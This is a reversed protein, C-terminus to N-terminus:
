RRWKYLKEYMKENFYKEESVGLTKIENKIM